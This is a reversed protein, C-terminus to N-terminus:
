STARRREREIRTSTRTSPTPPARTGRRTSGSSRRCCRSSEGLERSLFSWGPASTGTSASAVQVPHAGPHPPPRQQHLQLPHLRHHPLARRLPRGAQGPRATLPELRTGKGGALIVTLVGRMGGGGRNTGGNHRLFRNPTPLPAASVSVGTTRRTVRVARAFQECWDNRRQIPSDAGAGPRNRGDPAAARCNEHAARSHERCLRGPRRDARPPGMARGRGAPVAGSTPCERPSWLPKGAAMGGVSVEVGGDPDTALAAVCNRRGCCRDARRRSTCSFTHKARRLGPRLTGPDVEGAEGGVFVLRSAPRASTAWTDYTSLAVYYRGEARGRSGRPCLSCRTAAFSAPSRAAQVAARDPVDAPPVCGGTRTLRDVRAGLGSTVEGEARTAPTIRDAAFSSQGDALWGLGGCFNTAASPVPDCRRQGVGRGVSLRPCAALPWASRISSVPASTAFLECLLRRRGSHCDLRTRGLSEICHLARRAFSTRPRGPRAVSSALGSRPPMEAPGEGPGRWPRALGCCEIPSSSSSSKGM